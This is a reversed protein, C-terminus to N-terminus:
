GQAGLTIAPEVKAIRRFCALSAGIGALVLLASSLLIDAPLLAVPVPGGDLVAVIATGGLAGLATAAVVIVSVQGVGDRLVYWNSAGLAKLLGIQPTRQVTLVTFFAGVVLASIALLFVRILTMTATEATFGPSGAYAGEKTKTETGAARDVAAVDVGSPLRLAVASFREGVGPGYAIRQWVSLPVYAIPVHGYSGPFTFGQVRLATDTPGEIRYAAGVRAGEDRLDSSLVLGSLKVSGGGSERALFSDQRVGFLALDISRGGSGATATVFSVGIPTAEAGPVARWRRLARDDLTSRSFVAESHPAFAINTIPLARLGSTGDRVLGDALGTLVTSLVAVLGVVLGVLGFRRWGRRLDRLALFM